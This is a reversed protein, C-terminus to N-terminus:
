VLLGQQLQGWRGHGHQQMYSKDFDMHVLGGYVQLTCRKLTLTSAPM